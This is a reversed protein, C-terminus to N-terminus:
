RVGRPMAFPLPHPRPLSCLLVVPAVGSMPKGPKDPGGIGLVRFGLAELQRVRAEGSPTAGIACRCGMAQAASLRVEDLRKSLGLGRASPDVVLRNFSAIPSPPPDGFVDAYNEPDPVEELSAHVSLRAAGVPEDGRLVVWHRVSHDWADLWTRMAPDFSTNARWARVRLEGIREILSWHGVPVECLRLESM